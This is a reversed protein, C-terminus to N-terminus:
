GAALNQGVFDWNVLQDLWAGVYDARRNRWDVYYAHEWVDCTLLCRVGHAMPSDANSTQVVALKNKSDEVLWVWGSGFLKTAASLFEKRFGDYDGFSKEIRAAVAGAPKGGGKPRMSTWYFNHNWLQGAPNFLSARAPDGATKRIIDEVSSEAFEGGAVAKMVSDYYAKHHKGYHYAITESSIIPALAADPYPLPPYSAALKANEKASAAAGIAALGLVTSSGILIARRDVKNFATM